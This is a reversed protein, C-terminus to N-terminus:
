IIGRKSFKVTAPSMNPGASRVSSTGCSVRPWSAGQPFSSGGEGTHLPHTAAGLLTIQPKGRKRLDVAPQVKGGHQTDANGTLSNRIGKM